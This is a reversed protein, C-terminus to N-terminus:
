FTNKSNKILIWLLGARGLQGRGRCYEFFFNEINELIYNQNKLMFDVCDMIFHTSNEAEYRTFNRFISKKQCLRKLNFQLISQKIIEFDSKKEHFYTTQNIEVM